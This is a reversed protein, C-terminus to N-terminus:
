PNTEWVRIVQVVKPSGESAEWEYVFVILVYRINYLILGIHHKNTKKKVLFDILVKPHYLSLNSLLEVKKVNM